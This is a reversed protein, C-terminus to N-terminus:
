EGGERALEAARKIRVAYLEGTADPWQINAEDLANNLGGSVTIEGLRRSWSGNPGREGIWYTATNM